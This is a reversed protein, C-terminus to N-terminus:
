NAGGMAPVGELDLVEIREEEYRPGGLGGMLSEVPANLVERDDRVTERRLALARVDDVIAYLAPVLLLTLLTAIAVGWVIAVAMPGLMDDRGFFSYALPLLGGMTTLTTLMIARVRKHGATLISRFRGDGRARSSNIFDVLVLSDNVVIGALAIVGMMSILSLAVNSVILGVIVGVFSFPLAAMVVAPLLYSRFQAGLIAFIVIISIAMAKIMSEVSEQTTEFEGGATFSFDPRERRLEALFPLLARNVEVGTTVAEDVNANVTVTRKGDLKIVAADGVQEEITAVERLPVIRGDGNSIMLSQLMGADADDGGRFKVRVDVEGRATKMQTAISGAHATRVYQAVDLSTLGVMAAARRDVRVRMEKKGPVYDSRIDKVGPMDALKAEIRGALMSAAAADNGRVGISVPAGTPPGNAEAVVETAV